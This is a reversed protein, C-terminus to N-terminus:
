QMEDTPTTFIVLLGSLFSLFVFMCVVTPEDTDSILAQRDNSMEDDSSVDGVERRGVPKKSTEQVSM